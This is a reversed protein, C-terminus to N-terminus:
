PRSKAPGYLLSNFLFKFSGFAQGRNVVDAGMLILKGRGVDSEVVAHTNALRAEGVALGSRLFDGGEFRAVSRAAPTKLRFTQSRDFFLDVTAPIGYAIPQAPDVKARLVSGPIFLESSPLATAGTKGDEVLASAVGADLKQAIYASSGMAVVTGGSRIFAEIQPLTRDETVAGTM